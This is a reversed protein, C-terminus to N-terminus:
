GVYEYTDLDPVELLKDIGADEVILRIKSSKPLSFTIYGNSNSYGTIIKGVYFQNDARYPLESIYVKGLINEQDVKVSYTCYSPSDLRMIIYTPDIITEDSEHSEVKWVGTDHSIDDYSKITPAEPSAVVTDVSVWTDSLTQAWYIHYHDLGSDASSQWGLLM